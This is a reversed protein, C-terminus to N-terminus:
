GSREKAADVTSSERCVEFTWPSLPGEAALPLDNTDLRCLELPKSLDTTLGVRATFAMGCGAAELLDITHRNYSGYPYAMAWHRPLHGYVRELFERTRHIEEQQRAPPEDELWPHGYGHGGIMMGAAVMAQLQEVSIYLDRAFAEEDATVYRRFLEDTIQTRVPEPFRRQLVRKIRNVVPTDFRSPVLAVTFPDEAAPAAALRPLALQKIEALLRDFDRTVALIFHIKHVDLVQRLETTQAPVFFLGRIGRQQLIPLVVRFCDAIGDDFTLLCPNSPLSDGGYCAAVVQAPDCFTYHRALYDLQGLFEEVRRAKIEPYPTHALDRVYHYTVVTLNPKRGKETM